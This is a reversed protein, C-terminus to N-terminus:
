AASLQEARVAVDRFAPGAESLLERYVGLADQRQGMAELTLAVEYALDHSGHEDLAPQEATLELCRLANAYDGAARYIQALRVGVFPRLRATVMLEELLAMAATVNGMESLRDARALADWAASADLANPQAAEARDEARRFDGTVLGNDDFLEVESDWDPADAASPPAPSADAPALASVRRILDVIHPDLPHRCLLDITVQRARHFRGTELCVHALRVQLSALHDVGGDFGVEILRELAPLYRPYEALVREIHAADDAAPGQLRGFAAAARPDESGALRSDDEPLRLAALRACTPLWDHAPLEFAEGASARDGGAVAAAVRAQQVPAGVVAIPVVAPPAVAIPVVASPAVAIPAAAPPTDAAPEVAARSSRVTDLLKNIFPSSDLHENQLEAVRSSAVDNDPQVRLIKRYVARAKTTFGDRAVREALATFHAVGEDIQDLRLYLDGVANAITWDSPDQAFLLQYEKLAAAFAGNQMLQTAKQLGDRKSSPSSKSASAKM